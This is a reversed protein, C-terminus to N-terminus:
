GTQRMFEVGTLMDLLDDEDVFGRNFLSVLEVAIDNAVEADHATGNEKCHRDFVRQLMAFITPISLGRCTVL